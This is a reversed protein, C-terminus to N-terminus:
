RALRILLRACDFGVFVAGPLATGFFLVFFLTYLKERQPPQEPLLRDAVALVCKRAAFLCAPGLAAGVLLTVRITAGSRREISGASAAGILPACGVLVFLLDHLTVM